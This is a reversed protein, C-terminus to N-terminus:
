KFRGVVYDDEYHQACFAITQAAKSLDKCEEAQLLAFHHPGWATDLLIAVFYKFWMYAVREHIGRWLGDRICANVM